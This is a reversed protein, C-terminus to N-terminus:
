LDEEKMGSDQGIKGDGMRDFGDTIDGRVTWQTREKRRLPYEFFLLSYRLLKLLTFLQL